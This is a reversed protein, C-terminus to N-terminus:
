QPTTKRIRRFELIFPTTRGTGTIKFDCWDLDDKLQNLVSEMRPRLRSRDGDWEIADAIYNLEARYSNGQTSLFRHLAKGNSSKIKRRISWDFYTM